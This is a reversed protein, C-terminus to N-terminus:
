LVPIRRTEPAAKAIIIAIAGSASRRGVARQCATRLFQHCRQGFDMAM